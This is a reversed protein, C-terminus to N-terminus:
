VPKEKEVVHKSVKETNLSRLSAPWVFPRFVKRYLLLDPDHHQLTPVEDRAAGLDTAAEVYFSGRGSSITRQM